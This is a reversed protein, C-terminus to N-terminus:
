SGAPAVIAQRIETVLATFETDFDTDRRGVAAVALTSGGPRATLRGWIRRYPVFLRVVFGAVLLICGLWILPTGPDNAVNLGTYKAEKVFTYTLDGVKTAVGQDISKQTIPNGTQSDYLEIAVQGPKITPDNTGATAVVYATQGTGPVLFTGLRNGQQSEYQLAVNGSFVDKGSADTAKVVAAPGFFAQYFSIGDYRLPENVRVEATAVQQGDKALVVSSVFDKPAGTDTYYTDQFSNLTITLGARTPVPLTTGEALVFSSDRFGWISGVLAGAFIFVISFHGILGWWTAWGNRDAYIHITGDDASVTRYRRKALVGKAAVLVEDAPRHFTMSEHQPAHEFFAPGPDVRPHRTTQWTSPIRQVTCAVTSAILLAGVGRLWWGSFINFFGLADFPGTFGGYRPRVAAIFDAHTQPNGAVDASMQQLVTGVLTLAAFVLLLVLAFKMSTLLRWLGELTSDIGVGARGATPAAPGPLKDTRVSQAM